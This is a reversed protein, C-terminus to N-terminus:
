GRVGIPEKIGIVENGNVRISNRIRWLEFRGSAPARCLLLVEFFTARFSPGFSFFGPKATSKTPSSVRTDIGLTHPSAVHKLLM